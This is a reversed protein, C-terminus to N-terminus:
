SLVQEGIELGSMSAVTVAIVAAPRLRPSVYPELVPVCALMGQAYSVRAVDEFIEALKDREDATLMPFGQSLRSRIQQALTV